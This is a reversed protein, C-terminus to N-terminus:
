RSESGTPGLFKPASPSPMISMSPIISPPMHDHSAQTASKKTTSAAITMAEM